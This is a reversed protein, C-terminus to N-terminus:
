KTMTCIQKRRLSERRHLKAEEETEAQRTKRMKLRKKERHKDKALAIQEKTELERRTQMAVKSKERQAEKAELSM